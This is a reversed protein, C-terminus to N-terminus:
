MSGGNSPNTLLVAKKLRENQERFGDREAQLALLQARCSKIEKVLLKKTAKWERENESVREREFQLM